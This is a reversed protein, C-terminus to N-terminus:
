GSTPQKSTRFCHRVVMNKVLGLLFRSINSRNILAHPDLADFSPIISVVEKGTPKGLNRYTSCLAPNPQPKVCGRQSWCIAEYDALVIKSPSLVDGRMYKQIKIGEYGTSTASDRPIFKLHDLEGCRLVYIAYDISLTNFAGYLMESRRRKDGYDGSDEDNAEEDDQTFAKACEIFMSLDLRRRLSLGYKELLEAVDQFGIPILRERTAKFAALFLEHCEYLGEVPTLVWEENPVLLSYGTVRSFKLFDKIFRKYAGRDAQSRLIDGKSIRLIETIRLATCVDQNGMNTDWDIITDDTFPRLSDSPMSDPLVIVDNLAALRSPRARQQVHWIPLKRAVDVLNAPTYSFRSRAWRALQERDSSNLRLIEELVEAQNKQMYELFSRYPTPKKEDLVLSADPISKKLVITMGLKLLIGYDFGGSSEADVVNVSPDSIRGMSIFYFPKLTPILPLHSIHERSIGLKAKWFSDIWTRLMEDGLFEQAPAIREEILEVIGEKGLLSVNVRLELLRKPIKFERHVLRGSTKFLDYATTQQSDAVYNTKTYQSCITTYSGDDLPIQLGDLPVNEDLLYRLLTNIERIELRQIPLDDLLEKVFPGDVSRLQAKAAYEFLSIPLEAVNPPPVISLVKSLTGHCSTYKTSDKSFLVVDNPSLSSPPSYNSVFIRRPCEKLIESTWFANMFMQTPVNTDRNRTGPWWQINDNKVQLLRELLCLYLQPMQSSLLWRNYESEIGIGDSDIRINRREQELILPASIHAPLPTTVPLPLTCFFNYELKQVQDGDLVAAIRMPLLHHMEYKNRLDTRFNDPINVDMTVILWKPPQLSPSEFNVTESKFSEDPPPDDLVRTINIVRLVETHRDGNQRKHVEIGGLGTFLLSKYALKDFEGLLMEEVTTVSWPTTSLPDQRSHTENRLPL